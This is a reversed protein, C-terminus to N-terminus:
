SFTDFHLFFDFLSDYGFGFSVNFFFMFIEFKL